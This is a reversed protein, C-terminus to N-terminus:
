SLSPRRSLSATWRACPCSDCPAWDVRPIGFQHFAGQDTPFRRGERPVPSLPDRGDRAHSPLDGAWRANRLPSGPARAIDRPPSGTRPGKARVHGPGRPAPSLRAHRLSTVTVPMGIAFRVWLGRDRTRVLTSPEYPTGAHRHTNCFDDSPVQSLSAFFRDRRVSCRNACVSGLLSFRNRNALPLRSLASRAFVHRSGRLSPLTAAGLFPQNLRAFPRFRGGARCSSGTM